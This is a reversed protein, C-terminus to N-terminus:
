KQQFRRTEIVVRTKRDATKPLIQVVGDITDSPGSVQVGDDCLYTTKRSVREAWDRDPTFSTETLGHDLLRRVYEERKTDDTIAQAAIEEVDMEEGQATARVAQRLKAADEPDIQGENSELWKETERMVLQTMWRPTPVEYADLFDGFWVEADEVSAPQDHFLVDCRSEDKPPKVIAYTALRRSPDPLIHITELESGHKAFAETPDLRLLALYRESTDLDSFLGVALFTPAQLSKAIQHAAWMAIVKSQEVFDEPKKVINAACAAVTGESGNFKGIRAGSPKACGRIHGELFSRLGGSLTEEKEAFECEEDARGICHITLRHLEIEQISLM